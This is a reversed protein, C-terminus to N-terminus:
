RSLGQWTSGVKGLRPGAETELGVASSNDSSSSDPSQGAQYIGAGPPPLLCTTCALGEALWGQATVWCDSSQAEVAGEMFPTASAGVGPYLTVWLPGVAVVGEGPVGSRPPSWTLWATRQM